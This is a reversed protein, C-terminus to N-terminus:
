RVGGKPASVIPHPRRLQADLQLLGALIRCQGESPQGTVMGGLQLDIGQMIAVPEGGDSTVAFWDVLAMFLASVHPNPKQVVTLAAVSEAVYVGDVAPSDALTAPVNASVRDIAGLSPAFTTPVSSSHPVSPANLLHPPASPHTGRPQNPHQVTDQSLCDSRDVM